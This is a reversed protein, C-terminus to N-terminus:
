TGFIDQRASGSGSDSIVPSDGLVTPQPPDEPKRPTQPHELVLRLVLFVAMGILLGIAYWGFADGATPDYLQTVAGGGVAAVVAAIDSISSSDTRILTRYAVYGIVIGFCCAGFSVVM